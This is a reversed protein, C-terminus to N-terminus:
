SWMDKEKEFNLAARRLPGKENQRPSALEVAKVM